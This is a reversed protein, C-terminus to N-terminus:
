PTKLLFFRATVSSSIPISNWFNGSGDFVGTTNTTWGSLPTTVNTSTLIKYSGGATGGSGTLVLNGGVAQPANLKPPAPAAASGFLQFEAYGSYGNEGAPNTFDFKVASVNSAIPSATSSTMTVRDASPVAGPLTPNYNAVAITTFTSPSAV